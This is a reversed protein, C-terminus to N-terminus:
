KHISKIIFVLAPSAENNMGAEGRRAEGRRAEGRRADCRMADCRMADCRMADCRMADCRRQREVSWGSDCSYQKTCINTRPCTM